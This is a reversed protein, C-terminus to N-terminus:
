FQNVLEWMRSAIDEVSEFCEGKFQPSEWHGNCDKAIGLLVGDRFIQTMKETAKRFEFDPSKILEQNDPLQSYDLSKL